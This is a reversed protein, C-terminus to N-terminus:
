IKHHISAVESDFLVNKRKVPSRNIEVPKKFRDPSPVPLEEDSTFFKEEKKKVPSPKKVRLREEDRQKLEKFQRDMAERMDVQEDRLATILKTNEELSTMFRDAMVKLKKNFSATLKGSLESLKGNIYNELDFSNKSSVEEDDHQQDEGLDDKLDPDQNDDNLVYDDKKPTEERYVPRIEGDM